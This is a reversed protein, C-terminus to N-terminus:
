VKTWLFSITTANLSNKITLSASKSEPEKVETYSMMELIGRITESDRENAQCGYTRLYYKKDFGLNKYEEPINFLSRDIITEDKSRRQATRLNPKIFIENM